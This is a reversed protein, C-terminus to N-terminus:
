NNHKQTPLLQTRNRKRLVNKKRWQRNCCRSLIAFLWCSLLVFLCFGLYSNREKLHWLGTASRSRWRLPPNPPPPPVKSAKVIFTSNQSSLEPLDFFICPPGEEGSGRGAVATMNMLDSHKAFCNERCLANFNYSKYFKSELIDKLRQKVWGLIDRPINFCWCLKGQVHCLIRRTTQFDYDTQPVCLVTLYDSM